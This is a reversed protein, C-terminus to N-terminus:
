NQFYRMASKDALIHTVIEFPDVQLRRSFPIRFYPVISSFTSYCFVFFFVLLCSQLFFRFQVCSLFSLGLFLSVPFTSPFFFFSHVNIFGFIFFAWIRNRAVRFIEIPCILSLAIIELSSFPHSM